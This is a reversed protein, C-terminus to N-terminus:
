LTMIVDPCDAIAQYVAELDERTSLRVLVTVSTFRQNKSPRSDTSIVNEAGVVDVAFQQIVDDIADVTKCVAKFKYDCPYEILDFGDRPDKASM